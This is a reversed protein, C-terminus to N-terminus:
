NPELAWGRQGNKATWCRYRDETSRETVAAEFSSPWIVPEGGRPWAICVVANKSASPDTSTGFVQITQDVSEPERPRILDAIPEAAASAVPVLPDPRRMLGDNSMRRRVVREVRAGLLVSARDTCVGTLRAPDFRAVVAVDAYRFAGDMDTGRNNEGGRYRDFSIALCREWQPRAPTAELPCLHCSFNWCEDLQGTVKVTHRAFAHPNAKLRDLTVADAGPQAAGQAAFSL